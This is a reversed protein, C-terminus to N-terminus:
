DEGQIVQGLALLEDPIQKGRRSYSVARWSLRNIEKVRAKEHACPLCIGKFTKFTEKSCEPCIPGKAREWDENTFGM